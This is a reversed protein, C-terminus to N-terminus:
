SVCRELPEFPRLCFHVCNGVSNEPTTKSARECPSIWKTRLSLKLFRSISTKQNGTSSNWGVFFRNRLSVSRVFHIVGLSLANFVKGSVPTPFQTCIQKLDSPAKYLHSPYYIWRLFNLYWTLPKKQTQVPSHIEIIENRMNAIHRSLSKWLEKIEGANTYTFIPLTMIKVPGLFTLFIMRNWTKCKHLRSLTHERDEEEDELQSDIRQREIENEIDSLLVDHRIRKSRLFNDVAAVGRPSVMIDVPQPPRSKVWIKRPLDSWFDCYM